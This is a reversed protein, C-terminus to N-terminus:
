NQIVTKILYFCQSVTPDYPAPFQNWGAQPVNIYYPIPVQEWMDRPTAINTSKLLLFGLLPNATMEQFDILFKNTKVQADHIVVEPPPYAFESTTQISLLADITLMGGAELTGLDFRQAGSVWRKEPPSFSDVDTLMDKEVEWHVGTGPKGIVHSDV